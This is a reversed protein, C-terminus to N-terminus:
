TAALICHATPPSANFMICKIDAVALHCALTAAAAAVPLGPHSLLCQPVADKCSRTAARQCPLASLM